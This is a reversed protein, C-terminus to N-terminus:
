KKEREVNEDREFKPAIRLRVPVRTKFGGPINRLFVLEYNGVFGPGPEWKFVGRNADLFSGVPLPRMEGGIVVYGEYTGGLNDTFQNALRVEVPETEKTEVAIEGTWEPFVLQPAQDPAVAKTVEVISYDPPVAAAVAEARQGIAEGQTAASSAITSSQIASTMPGVVGGNMVTFYRSGLGETNGQSDTVTWSITHLGNSLGTTNLIYYGVAGSSNAYGPFLSAIDTRFQNYVPRGKFVGDVFVSMTSGNTPITGRPSLAWGFVAYANGSASGGQSPTDITGFPKAAAANNVTFTKSGLYTSRGEADVAYAHMRHVGNGGTPRANVRDPLMNTLVMFGWGARYNLPYETYLAEVDPRSGSVFAATGVFPQGGEGNVPDRYIDVRSVGVDDIAWGTFPIAGSVNVIGNTPTDFFGGAVATTGSQYVRLRVAVNLVTSTGTPRVSVTGDYTGVNTSGPVVSVTVQGTGTGSAPTVRLWSQNVTATWAAPSGTTQNVVLTQAPTFISSTTGSRVAGYSLRGRDLAFGGGTPPTNSITTSVEISPTSRLGGSSEAYVRFFWTGAGLNPSTWGTTNGADALTEAGALSNRYGVLYRVVNDAPPNADWALQVTAAEVQTSLLGVGALVCLFRLVRPM